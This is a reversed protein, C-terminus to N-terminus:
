DKEKEEVPCELLYVTSDANATALQKGDPTFALGKVYPVEEQPPVKMDWIKVEKGVEISWLKVVNDVSATAFQRGDRSMGFAIVPKKHGPM